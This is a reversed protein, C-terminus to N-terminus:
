RLFLDGQNPDKVKIVKRSPKHLQLKDALQPATIKLEARAFEISQPHVEGEFVEYIRRPDIKHKASIERIKLGKAREVWISVAQKVTLAM